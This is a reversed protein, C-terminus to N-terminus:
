RGFYRGVERLGDVLRDVDERTNYLYFSARVSSQISLAAMLPQACHHGARVAIGQSDLVQAVDHPHVGDYNFAVVAQRGGAPGYVSVRPLAALRAAADMALARSHAAIHDMGLRELFAVAAGWGIAGAVHPTGGEFRYPVDAWTAHEQDVEAIMEGGFLLPDAERLREPRGYLAGIGTPGCMKHASFAFFDVGLAAVSVPLHPASQAGDVVVVADQRHALAVLERIPNETGLVNSVHAVAALRTRSTFSARIAEATLRGDATLPAFVLRAGTAKAVQQWPVLNSHHEAPTLLIEDGPRLHRRAWGSAVLNLGETTGRTFVLSQADAGVFAAVRARAAEYAETARGALTHVSRHVNSPYDAYYEVVADIVAQPKLSTAASDLYVLRHGNVTQRLAPFAQAVAAWTPPATTAPSTTM